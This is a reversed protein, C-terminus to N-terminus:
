AVFTWAAFQVTWVALLPACAFVTARTLRREALWAGAAMWLPFITLTYRDLSLLPQENVPSWICVLLLGAAYAAYGLPLRRFAARLAVAAMILVLLLLVSKASYTLGGGLGRAYVPEGHVVIAGLGSAAARMAAAVTDLPGTMRHGHGGVTQQLFPALPGFGRAAVYGLYCLLAAPPLGLWARRRRERRWEIALPIVLLVGPVRTLAALAALAAAAELRGRRSAYVAGVSLALFLSETYVATFFFSLPVFALLLVTADAAQRGLELETLRHLLALAVAFCTASIAVAAIVASGTLIGLVRILLPYLPFFVSDSARTYGHAAIALYHISDWRVAPAALVNGFVGFHSSVRGPDFVSWGKLRPVALAGLIGAALVVVRSLAFARFAVRGRSGALRDGTVASM